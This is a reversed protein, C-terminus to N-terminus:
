IDCLAHMIFIVNELCCNGQELVIDQLGLIADKLNIKNNLDIDYCKSKICIKQPRSIWGSVVPKITLPTCISHKIMLDPAPLSFSAETYGKPIGSFIPTDDYEIAFPLLNDCPAEIVVSGDISDGEVFSDSMKLFIAQMGFPRLYIDMNDINIEPTITTKWKEYSPDNVYLGVEKGQPVPVCYRGQIDLLGSTGIDDWDSLVVVGNITKQTSEDYVNGCISVEGSDLDGQSIKVTYSTDAGYEHKNSIKFYYVKDTTKDAPIICKEGQNRGYFNIDISNDSDYFFSIMVDAFRGVNYVKIEYANGTQGHFKFWDVDNDHYFNHIQECNIWLTNAKEQINDNGKIDDHEFPDPSYASITKPDSIKGHNNMAYLIIKCYGDDTLYLDNLEFRSDDQLNRNMEILPLNYQCAQDPTEIDSQFVNEVIVAWVKSISDPQNVKCWISVPTDPEDHKIDQITDRVSPKLAAAMLGRGIYYNHAVLAESHTDCYTNGDSDFCPSQYGSISTSSKQFATFLKAGNSIQNWFFRSFSIMGQNAFRANRDTSAILIRNDAALQQLMSKARCADYIFILKGSFQLQAVDLWSNLTSASLITDADIVFSKDWGSGVMYLVFEQVTDNNEIINSEINGPDPATINPSDINKIDSACIHIDNADYGQSCLAQFASNILNNITKKMDPDDTQSGILIAKRRISSTFSTNDAAFPISLNGDMDEAIFLCNYEGQYYTRTYSGEYRGTKVQSLLLDPKKDYITRIEDGFDNLPNIYVSVKKIRDNDQVGTAIFHLQNENEDVKEIWAYDITPSDSLAPQQDGIHKTSLANDDPAIMPNQMSRMSLFASDYANGISKNQLIETWFYMSFSFNGDIFMKANTHEDTSTMVVRKASPQMNLFAGSKCFDNIVYIDIDKNKKELNNLYSRLESVSLENCGIFKNDDGHDVLYIILSEPVPEILTWKEIAEKLAEKTPIGDIDDYKGNLDLDITEPNLYFIQDKTIGKTNLVYHAFNANAKIAQWLDDTESQRGAVIIAKTTGTLEIKKFAQVRNLSADSVYLVDDKGFAIGTPHYMNGSLLGYEGLTELLKGSHNFMLINHNYKNAVYLNGDRVAIDCPVNLPGENMANNGWEDLLCGQEDFKYIRNNCQNTPTYIGADTVYIWNAERDIAIAHPTIDDKFQWDAIYQCNHDLKLIRHNGSDAVYLCANADIDIGRPHKLGLHTFTEVINGQDDFKLIRHNEIDTVYIEFQGFSEYIALDYPMMDDPEKTLITWKIGDLLKQLRRNQRDCVYLQYNRDTEMGGPFFFHGAKSGASQWLETYNGDSSVKEIITTENELSVFAGPYDVITGFLVAYIDGHQDIDIANIDLNSDKKLSWSKLFQGSDNYKVIIGESDDAYIYGAKDIAIHKHHFQNPNDFQVKEEFKCNYKFIDNNRVIYINGQIDVAMDDVKSMDFHAESYDLVPNIIKLEKGNSIYLYGKLDVSLLTAKQTTDQWDTILENQWQSLFKGNSNFKQIRHNGSDLVYVNNQPDVDIAEPQNFEGENVGYAGWVSLLQGRSNYQLVRNNSKDLINITDNSDIAIDTIANFYWRNKLTPYIKFYQYNKKPKVYVSVPHPESQYIGDSAFLLMDFEGSHEKNSPTGVLQFSQNRKQITLWEPCFQCIMTIDNPHSNMDMVSISYCFPEDINIVTQANEPSSTFIPANEIINECYQGTIEINDICFGTNFYNGVNQNVWKFVLMISRGSFADLSLATKEWQDKSRFAKKECILQFTGDMKQIYVEGFANNEPSKWDFTLTPHATHTLDIEHALYSIAPISMAIYPDKNNYSVFAFKNKDLLCPTSIRWPNGPYHNDSYIKWGVSDNQFDEYFWVVNLTYSLTTSGNDNSATIMVHHSTIDHSTPTGTLHLSGSQLNGSLTLWDPYSAATISSNKITNLAITYDYTNGKMVKTEPTYIFIPKTTYNGSIRINDICLGMNNLPTKNENYWIFSLEVQKGSFPDLDVVIQQWKESYALKNSLFGTGYDDQVYYKWYISLPKALNDTPADCKWDFSLRPHNIQTLDINRKLTSHSFPPGNNSIYAANGSFVNTHGIEWNNDKFWKSVDVDFDYEFGVVTLSVSQTITQSNNAFEITFVHHGVDKFNPIGELFIRDQSMNLQLFSNEPRVKPSSMTKETDFVVITYTYPTGVFLTQIDPPTTLLYLSYDKESKEIAGIDCNISRNEGRQDKGVMTNDYDLCTGANVLPSDDSPLYYRAIHSQSSILPSLTNNLDGIYNHGMSIIYDLNVNSPQNNDLNNTIATNKLYVIGSRHNYLGSYRNKEYSKKSFNNAITSHSIYMIGGKNFIGGCDKATNNGITSNIIFVTGNENYISGVESVAINNTIASNKITITGYYNYIAAYNGARNNDIACDTMTVKGFSNHIAGGDGSANNNHIVSHSLYLNSNDLRIGAGQNADNNKITVHDLMLKSKGSYIGSSNEITLNSIAAMDCKNLYFSTYTYKDNNFNLHLKASTPGIIHVPKTLSISVNEDIYLTGEIEFVIYDYPRAKALLVPFSNEDSSQLNRVYHTTPVYVTLPSNTTVTPTSLSILIDYVGANVSSPNATLSLQNSSIETKMWSPINKPKISVPQDEFTDVYITSTYPQEFIISSCSLTPANNLIGIVKVHDVCFAPGQGYDFGNYWVFKLDVIQGEFQDLVISEKTWQKSNRYEFYFSMRHNSHGDDIYLEGNDGPDFFDPEEGMCKWYFTLVPHIIYSMDIKTSLVSRAPKNKNYDDTIGDTNSIYASKSGNFATADGVTWLNVASYSAHSSWSSVDEEFDEFLIQITQSWNLQIMGSDDRARGDVAIYYINGPQAELVVKSSFNSNNPSNDDDNQICATLHSVDAGQCVALVTDFSSGYTDFIMTLNEYAQWKWWVSHQGKKDAIQPEGSEKTASANSAVLTGTNTTIQSAQSFNDNPPATKSYVYLQQEYINDNENSENVQNDADCIYSLTYLGEETFIFQFDYTPKYYDEHIGNSDYVQKVSNGNVSFLISYPTVIDASRNVCAFDIYSNDGAFIKSSYSTDPQNSVVIYDDYWEVPKYPMMNPLTRAISYFPILLCITIISIQHKM